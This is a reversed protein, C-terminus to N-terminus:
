IYISIQVEERTRNNEKSTTLPEKNEQEREIELDKNIRKPYSQQFSIWKTPSLIIIDEDGMWEQINESLISNQNVGRKM